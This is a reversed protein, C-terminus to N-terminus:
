LSLLDLNELCLLKMSVCWFWRMNKGRAHSINVRCLLVIEDGENNIKITAIDNNVSVLFPKLPCRIRTSPNAKLLRDNDDFNGFRIVILESYKEEDGDEDEASM